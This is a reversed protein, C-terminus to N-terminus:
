KTVDYIEQYKSDGAAFFHAPFSFSACCDPVITKAKRAGTKATPSEFYWSISSTM